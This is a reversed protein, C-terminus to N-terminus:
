VTLGAIDALLDSNGVIFPMPSPHYGKLDLPWLSGKLLNGHADVQIVTGGGQRVILEGAAVDWLKGGFHIAGDMLGAGVMGLHLATSGLNRIMCRDLLDHLIKPRHNYTNISIGFVTEPCFRGPRVTVPQNNLLAPGGKGASFLWDFNPEYIAGAVPEGRHLLAVSCSFICVGAAFNRTGDIPDIVWVFDEGGGPRSATLATNEEAILGHSPYAKALREVISDQVRHDAETVVSKAGKISSRTKGILSKALTGGERALKAAFAVYQQIENPAIM